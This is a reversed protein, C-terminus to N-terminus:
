LSPLNPNSYSYLLVIRDEEVSLVLMISLSLTGVAPILSLIGMLHGHQSLRTEHEGRRTIKLNIGVRDDFDHKLINLVFNNSYVIHELAQSLRFTDISSPPIAALLASALRTTPAFLKCFCFSTKLSPRSSRVSFCLLSFCALNLLACPRTMPNRDRSVNTEQADNTPVM